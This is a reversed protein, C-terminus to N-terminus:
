RLGEGEYKLVVSLRERHEDVFIREIEVAVAIRTRKFRPERLIAPAAVLPAVANIGEHVIMRHDVLREADRAPMRAHLEAPMAALYELKRGPIGAPV